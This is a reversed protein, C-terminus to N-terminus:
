YRELLEAIIDYYETRGKYPAYKAKAIESKLKDVSWKNEIGSKFLDMYTIVQKVDRRKEELNNLIGDIKTRIHAPPRRDMRAHYVDSIACDYYSLGQVLMARYTVIQNIDFAKLRLIDDAEKAVDTVISFDFDISKEDSYVGSNENRYTAVEGTEKDVIDFSKIWSLASKKSRLLAKAQRLSFNTAQVSSTTKLYKGGKMPNEMVYNKGDTIIFLVIM